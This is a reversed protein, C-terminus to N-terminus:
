NFGYFEADLDASMEAYARIDEPIPDVIDDIINVDVNLFGAIEENSFGNFNMCRIETALDKMRGM